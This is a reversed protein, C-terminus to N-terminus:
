LKHEQIQKHFKGSAIINIMGAYQIPATNSFVQFRCTFCAHLWVWVEECLSKSMMHLFVECQLIMNLPSHFVNVSSLLRDILKNMNLLHCMKEDCANSYTQESMLQSRLFSDLVCILILDLNYHAITYHISHHFFYSIRIRKPTGNNCGVHRPVRQVCRLCQM